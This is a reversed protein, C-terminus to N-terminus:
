RCRAEWNLICDVMIQDFNQCKYIRTDKFLKFGKSLAEKKSKYMFAEGNFHINSFNDGNLSVWRWRYKTNFKYRKDHITVIKLIWPGHQSSIMLFTNDSLDSEEVCDLYKPTIVIM